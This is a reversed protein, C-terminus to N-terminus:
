KASERCARTIEPVFKTELLSAMECAAQLLDPERIVYSKLQLIEEDSFRNKKGDARKKPDRLLAVNAEAGAEDDLNIGRPVLEKLYWGRIMPIWGQTGVLHADLIPGITLASTSNKVRGDRRPHALIKNRVGVAYELQSNPQPPLRLLSVLTSIEYYAFTVLMQAERQCRDLGQRLEDFQIRGPDSARQAEILGKRQSDLCVYSECLERRRDFSLALAEVRDVIDFVFTRDEWVKVFDPLLSADTRVDPGSQVKQIELRADNLFKAFPNTWPALVSTM